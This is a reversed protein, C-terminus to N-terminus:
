SLLRVTRIQYPGLDLRVKGQRVPLTGTDQELFDTERVEAVTFGAELLATVRTDDPNFLRVIRGHGREANKV